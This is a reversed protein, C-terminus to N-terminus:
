ILHIGFQIRLLFHGKLRASSVKIMSIEVTINEKTSRKSVRLGQSKNSSKVSRHCSNPFTVYYSTIQTCSTGLFVDIWVQLALVLRGTFPNVIAQTLYKM